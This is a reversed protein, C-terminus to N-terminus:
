RLKPEQMAATRKWSEVIQDKCREPDKGYYKRPVPYIGDPLIILTLDRGYDRRRGALSRVEFQAFKKGENDFVEVKEFDIGRDSPSRRREVRGSKPALWFGFTQGSKASVQVQVNQDTGNSIADGPIVCGPVLALLSLLASRRSIGTTLSFSEELMNNTLPDGVSFIWRKKFMKHALDHCNMEISDAGRDM